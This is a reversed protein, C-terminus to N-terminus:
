QWRLRFRVESAARNAVELAQHEGRRKLRRLARAILVRQFHHAVLATVVPLLEKFANAVTEPSAETAGQDQQRVYDNFLDIAEDISKRMARDHRTALGLLKRVPIGNRLLKLAGRASQLDAESYRITGEERVLGELLGSREILTVLARPVGLLRAMETTNYRPEATEQELALLLVQDSDAREQKALLMAIVKLPLGKGSMSRVLRLRDVHSDDYIALRGEHVPRHLLGISQYYRITDVALGSKEVLEALSYRM